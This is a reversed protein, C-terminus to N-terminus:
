VALVDFPPAHRRLPLWITVGRLLMLLALGAWVGLLQADAVALPTPQGAALRSALLMLGGAPLCAALMFAAAHTFGGVGYLIGDM